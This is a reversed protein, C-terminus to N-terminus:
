WPKYISQFYKKWINFRQKELIYAIIKWVKTNMEILGTKRNKCFPNCVSKDMNRLLVKFGPLNMNSFQWSFPHWSEGEGLLHNQPKFSDKRENLENQLGSLIGIGEELEDLDNDLPYMLTVIFWFYLGFPIKDGSWIKLPVYRTRNILILPNFILFLFFNFTRELGMKSNQLSPFPFIKCFDNWILFIIGIIMIISSIRIWSYTWIMMKTNLGRFLCLLNFLLLFSHMMVDWGVVKYCFNLKGLSLLFLFQLLHHYFLLLWCSRIKIFLLNSFQFFFFLFVFFQFRIRCTITFSWSWGRKRGRWWWFRSRM